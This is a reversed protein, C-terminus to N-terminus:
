GAVRIPRVDSHENGFMDTAVVEIAHTGNSLDTPLSARWLHSCVSPGPFKHYPPPVEQTREVQRVFAPDHEKVQELERWQYGAGCRLRVKSRASGNFVNAYVAAEGLKERAIEPPATINMQHNKPRQLVRYGDINYGNGDFEVELYGRPTGDAMTGNPIGREDPPGAFWSGCLTGTNVHHHPKAGRWGDASDLFFHNHAHTHASFSLTHPRNEILRYLEQRDASPTGPAANPDFGRFLPIHFMLVALRNQPVLKLDNRIFELQREGLGPRYAPGGKAQRGMWEVNNLVLFHVPGCDFSYYTPGFVSRFTETSHRNDVADQNLDHNGVVNHWPVGALGMAENLSDYLSLDNFMIDGLSVGFLADTGALQPVVTRALYSIETSNRPQPDGCVLAKFQDPEDRQTLPFDISEPLPGTPRVGSFRLAPSGEPQHIYFARPLNNKSLPTMWNRPKIVFFTTQEGEIPLRWRGNKDTICIDRGNSVAVGAIGRDGRRWKGTGDRDQFVFGEAHTPLTKQAWINPAFILAGGAVLSQVFKRRTFTIAPTSRSNM